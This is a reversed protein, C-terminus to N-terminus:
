KEDRERREFRRLVLGAFFGVAMAAALALAPHKQLARGAERVKRVADGAAQSFDPAEM